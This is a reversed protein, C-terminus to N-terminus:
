TDKLKVKMKQEIESKFLRLKKSDEKAKDLKEKAKTLNDFSECKKSQEIKKMEEEVLGLLEYKEHVKTLFDIISYPDDLVGHDPWKKFHYQVVEWGDVGM